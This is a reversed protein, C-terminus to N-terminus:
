STLHFYVFYNGTIMVQDEKMEDFKKQWEQNSKENMVIYSIHRRIKEHADLLDHLSETYIFKDTITPELEELIARITQIVQPLLECYDCKQDHEVSCDTSFEKKDADSTAFSICHTACNSFEELNYVFHHKIYREATSM